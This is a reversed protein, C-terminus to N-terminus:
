LQKEKHDEQRRAQEPGDHVDQHTSFLGGPPETKDPSWKIHYKVLLLRSQEISVTTHFLFNVIINKAALFVPFYLLSDAPAVAHKLCSTGDSLSDIRKRREAETWARSVATVEGCM